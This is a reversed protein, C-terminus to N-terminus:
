KLEKKISEPIQELLDSALMSANGKVAAAREGAMGHLFTGLVAAEEPSMKQALLGAIMGALVDGSGGTAMGNCGTPNLFLRGYAGIVTRADKLVCVLHNNRSFERACQLLSGKIEPIKQGTLRSMEGPHPTIILPAVANELLKRDKAILNLGDADMVVPKERQKLVERVLVEASEEMGIGPGALIVDAWKMKDLLLSIDPAKSDYGTVIAEPLRALLIERNARPTFIQVLGCGMLYAAKGSFYAAGAMQGSGAIVLVKGYSGKNSDRKRAPFLKKADQRELCCVEPKHDLISNEDIGIDATILEGCIEAGPYLMQGVKTFGFTVTVDSHFAEGLVQGTDALLGSPIDVAIRLAKQSNCWGILEKLRGEMPRSLGIGFLADVIIDYKGQPMEKGAAGPWARVIPVGYNEAIHYQRKTEETMKGFDMPGYVRVPYGELFLLRAIAFGDGGNNGAGCIVLVSKEKTFRKKIEQCVALAAREMLVASPVGFHEITNQDLEKMERSNVLYKM